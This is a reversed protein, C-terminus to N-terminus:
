KPYSDFADLWAIKGGVPFGHKVQPVHLDREYHMYVCLVQAWVNAEREAGVLVDCLIEAYKQM